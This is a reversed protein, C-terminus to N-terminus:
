LRSRQCGQCWPRHPSFGSSSSGGEQEDVDMPDNDDDSFDYLEPFADFDNMEVDMDVDNREDFDANVCFSMKNNPLPPRPVNAVSTSM